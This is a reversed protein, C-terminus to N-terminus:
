VLITLSGVEKEAKPQPPEPCRPQNPNLEPSGCDTEAGTASVTSLSYVFTQPGEKADGRTETLEFKCQTGRQELLKLYPGIQAGADFLCFAAMPSTKPVRPDSVNVVLDGDDDWIRAFLSQRGEDYTADVGYNTGKPMGEATSLAMFDSAVLNIELCATAPSKCSKSEPAAVKKKEHFM